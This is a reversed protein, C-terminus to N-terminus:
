VTLSDPAADWCKVASVHLLSDGRKNVDMISTERSHLLRRLTDVDDTKTARFAPSDDPLTKSMRFDSKLSLGPSAALTWVTM